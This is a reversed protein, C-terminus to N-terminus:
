GYFLVDRPLRFRALEAGTGDLRELLYVARRLMEEAFSRRIEFRTSSVFSRVLGLALRAEFTADEEARAFDRAFALLLEIVRNLPARRRPRFVPVRFNSVLFVSVDQVYDMRRSRYLDIFHVSDDKPNFIVNDLNFDGHGLISFPAELEEDLHRRTELLETLGRVEVEGIRQGLEEFYPHVTYVAELRAELQGIFGPKVPDPERTERWVRALTETVRRVAHEVVPLEENMVIEQLNQGELYQVLMSARDGEQYRLVRPALGPLIGAWREMAEKERRIKRPDGEKFIVEEEDLAESRVRGIQSGSRTGWIGRFDVHDLSPVSASPHLQNSLERYARMKLREGMKAFLVAEGVNQLCDGIRELYHFIFLATVLNAVDDTTASLDRLIREVRNEYLDDLVLEGQAIQVAKTSDRGEYAEIVLELSAFIAGFFPAVEYHRLFGRPELRQWQRVASVAHDAIRELNTTITTTSRLLDVTKKDIDGERRLVAFCKNEVLTRLHDIYDDRSALRSAEVADDGELARAASSVQKIVELVLFRFNRTLSEDLDQAPESV